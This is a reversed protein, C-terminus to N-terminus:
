RQGSNHLVHQDILPVLDFNSLHDESEFRARSRLWM